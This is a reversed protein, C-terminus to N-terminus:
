PCPDSLSLPNSSVGLDDVFLILFNKPTPAAARAAAVLALLPLSAARVGMAQQTLPDAALM